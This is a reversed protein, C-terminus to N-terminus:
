SRRMRRRHTESVAQLFFCLKEINKLNVFQFNSFLAPTLTNTLSLGNALDELGWGGRM